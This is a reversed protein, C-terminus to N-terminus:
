SLQKSNGHLEAFKSLKQIAETSEKTTNIQFGEMEEKIDRICTILMKCIGVLHNIICAAARCLVLVRACQIAFVISYEFPNMSSLPLRLHENTCISPIIQVIFESIREETGSVMRPFSPSSCQKRCRNHLLCDFKHRISSDFCM